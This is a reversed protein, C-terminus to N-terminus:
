LRWHIKGYLAPAGGECHQAFRLDIATLVNSDYTVSDVAFWGTVTNCGRGEGSWELAGKTPNHSSYGQLDGYYGSQFKDLFNMTQFRGGWSESGGVLVNIARGLTYVSISSDAFTYLYNGGRGIYDETDSEIYVYNGSDPLQSSDVDWLDSPIPNVPGPPSTADDARWHIKGYLAPEGVSCHQAFRLDIATLVGAEYSVSDVVFWGTLSNCGRGEGSWDLGGKTPNRPNSQLDGYYGPQFRDLSNMAHFYGDWNEDGNVSVYLGNVASVSFISDALTYLYNGGGGIYDGTNSELYIYNGNAPLQSADANWLNNPIPNVPGPPSTADDARWHIKGYLAPARGLCYQAFRLDIATLVGAEYTINDVVFWGTARNCSRGEGYWTVGGKAPNHSPYGQLDGYYGSQLNNLSTMAQFNGTWGEDGDISVNLTRTSPSVSIISDVQTYLYNGGGGIYDGTDSKLYIYNGSAPLQSLDADWLNDPVPNVPGPPSTADDARWHIKGHTTPTGVGGCSQAFRLDIATLVGAEYSSSDVVFWGTLTDCGSADGGWYMGGRMPNNSPYYQMDGYYGPQLKDLGSMVQFNGGWDKDGNISVNLVENSTFASLISNTSVSLISNIPTYLYNGGGIGYNGPDSELYVYSGSAPLVGPDADWLSEPIPYVPGLGSSSSQGASSSILSSSAVSSSASSQRLSSSSSQVPWEPIASLNGDKVLNLLDQYTGFAASVVEEIDDLLKDWPDGIDFPTTFPDFIPSPLNFNAAILRAHVENQSQLLKTQVTMWSSSLFWDKPLLNSANALILDTLPTINVVGFKSVFSHLTRQELIYIGLAVDHVQVDYTVQLACPLADVGIYGTFSGDSQTVVAQTGEFGSGDTCRAIVTGGVIPAGIAATGTIMQTPMADSSVASSSQNSGISSQESSVSRQSSSTSAVESGLSSSSVTGLSPSPVKGGSSNGGGCAALLLSMICLTQFKLLRSM